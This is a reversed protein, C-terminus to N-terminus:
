PRVPRRRQRHPIDPDRHVKVKRGRTMDYGKMRASRFADPDTPFLPADDRRRFVEDHLSKDGAQYRQLVRCYADRADDYAEFERIAAMEAPTFQPTTM